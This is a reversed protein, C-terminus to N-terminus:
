IDLNDLFETQNKGSFAVGIVHVCANEIDIWFYVYYNNILIRRVGESRWPEEEVLPFREPNNGLGLIGIQLKNILKEAASSNSLVVTIYWVIERMQEEAQQTISTEYRNM